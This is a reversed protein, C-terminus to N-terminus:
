GFGRPNMHIAGTVIEAEIEAIAYKGRSYTVFKEQLLTQMITSFLEEHQQPLSLKALLEQFTLPTYSRGSILQRTAKLINEFRKVAPDQAAPPVYSPAKRVGGPQ